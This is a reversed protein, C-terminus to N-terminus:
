NVIRRPKLKSLSVSLPLNTHWEVITSTKELALLTNSREIMIIRYAIEESKSEFIPPPEPIPSIILLSYGAAALEQIGNVIEPDLLPSLIVIQSKLPLMRRALLNVVYSTSIMSKGPRALSLLYLIRREHRKGFGAPVSGREHGQLVLGVRNGQRLFFRVLSATAVVRREFENETNTPFLATDSDLVVMIETVKEAETENIILKNLRASAKWNIRKPDDGSLYQRMNYFESGLGRSRSQINGPWAGVHRPRINVGRMKDPRPIVTVTDEALKKEFMYLGFPDKVKVTLPGIDYHGRQPSQFDYPLEVTEFPGISVHLSATGKEFEVQSPIDETIEVNLLYNNSENTIERVVEIDENGFTESPVINRALHVKPKEPLGFLNSL